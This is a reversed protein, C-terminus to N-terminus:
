SSNLLPQKPILFVLFSIELSEISKVNSCVILATVALWFVPVEYKVFEIAALCRHASLWKTLISTRESTRLLSSIVVLSSTKLSRYGLRITFFVLSTSIICLLMWSFMFEKLLSIFLSRRKLIPVSLDDLCSVASNKNFTLLIPGFPRLPKM